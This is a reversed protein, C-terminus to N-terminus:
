PLRLLIGAIRGIGFASGLAGIGYFGFVTVLACIGMWGFAAGELNGCRFFLGNSPSKRRAM